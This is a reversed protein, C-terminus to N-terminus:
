LVRTLWAWRLHSPTALDPDLIPWSTVDPITSEENWHKMTKEYLILWKKAYIIQFVILNRQFLLSVNFYVPPSLLCNRFHRWPRNQVWQSLLERDDKNPTTPSPVKFSLKTAFIHRFRANKKCVRRHMRSICFGLFFFMKAM